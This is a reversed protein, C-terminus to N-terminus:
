RLLYPKCGSPPQADRDGLVACRRNLLDDTDLFAVFEGSALELASNAAQSRDEKQSCPIIKIRDNESKFKQLITDTAEDTSTTNIICLEWYPYLQKNVSEIAAIFFDANSENVPMVLSICPAYTFEAIQKKILLRDSDNLAYFNQHWTHYNIVSYTLEPQNPDHAM